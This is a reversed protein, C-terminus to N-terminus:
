LDLSDLRSNQMQQFVSFDFTVCLLSLTWTGVSLQAQWLVHQESNSDSVARFM